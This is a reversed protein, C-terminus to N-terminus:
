RDFHGGDRRFHLCRGHRIRVRSADVRVAGVAPAQEGRYRLCLKNVSMAERVEVDDRPVKYERAGGWAGHTRPFPEKLATLCGSESPTSRRVGKGAAREGGEVNRQAAPGCRAGRDLRSGKLSCTISQPKKGEVSYGIHPAFSALVCGLHWAQSVEKMRGRGHSRRWQPVDLAVDNAVVAAWLWISTLSTSRGVPRHQDTM